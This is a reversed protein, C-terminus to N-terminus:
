SEELAKNKQNKEFDNIKDYLIKLVDKFLVVAIGLAIFRMPMLTAAYRDFSFTMAYVYINGLYLFALFFMIGRHKKLYFASLFALMCVVFDLNRWFLITDTKIGFLEEWYFCGKIMRIPKDVLYSDIMSKIDKKAWETMRYKAKVEDSKLAIYKGMYDKKLTGDENYEDAYMEKIVDDVNTKYDLSSDSPYGHGQYTGLLMPNGAGWTLPIFEGYLNYNRISWPIVFCLVVCGLILGQKLLKVFNYKVILLYILAFVPYIAINAKLMLALMYSITCLIFPLRKNTKGMMITYYVMATFLLMFPTETLIINDMWAFDIWFLPLAALIGCFKPAYLNVIKYIYWATASGMVFWLLKLALWLTKGEGFIMSLIGILVTMGPMIQASVIGYMTITGTNKFAIGSNFYGLDDSGLNYTIGLRYMVYFRELFLLLMIFLIWKNELIFAKCLEFFSNNKKLSKNKM